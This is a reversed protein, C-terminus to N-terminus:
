LLDLKRSGQAFLASYPNTNQKQKKQKIKKVSYDIESVPLRSSYFSFFEALNASFHFLM